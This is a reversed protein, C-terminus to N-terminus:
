HATRGEECKVVDDSIGLVWAAWRRSGYRSVGMPLGPSCCDGVGGAESHDLCHCSESRGMLWEGERRAMLLDDERQAVRETWHTEGGRGTAIVLLIGGLESGGGM